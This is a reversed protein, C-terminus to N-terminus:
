EGYDSCFEPADDGLAVCSRLIEDLIMQCPNEANCPPHTAASVELCQDVYTQAEDAGVEASCSQAAAQDIAFLSAAVFCAARFASSLRSAM